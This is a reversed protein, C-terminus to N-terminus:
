WRENIHRLINKQEATLDDQIGKKNKSKQILIDLKYGESDVVRWLVYKEGNIRTSMEDLHWKDARAPEKKKLVDNFYSAFKLCWKHVSEYSISVRRYLMMEEIGM